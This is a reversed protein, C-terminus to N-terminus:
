LGDYVGWLEAQSISCTGLKASFGLLFNCWHDRFIDGCSANDMSIVSGDTNLKIWHELPPSWNVQLVSFDTINAQVNALTGIADQYDKALMVGKHFLANPDISMGEFIVKNM